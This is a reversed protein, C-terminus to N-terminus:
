KVFKYLNSGIRLVYAGPSLAHIFSADAGAKLLVGNLNYVDAETCDKLLETIGSERAIVTVTCRASLDSGDVTAATITATGVNQLTVLGNNDVTAVNDDSSTWKVGKDTTEAPLVTASLAIVSGPFDEVSECDLSISTALIVAPQKELVVVECVAELGNAAIASVMAHGPAVATVVGAEVTAVLEDSSSWTVSRDTANDPSVTATLVFVDGETVSVYTQDLEIGAVPIERASVTVECGASLGNSATATIIASGPAVATVVGAEVTAVAADSSSWTVSRNTANDPNVTATLAFVDGETVSVSTRDLEIGAVAVVPNGIQLPFADSIKNEYIDYCILDYLGDALDFSLGVYGSLTQRAPLSVSIGYSLLAEDSGPRFVRAYIADNYDVDSNNKLSVNFRTETNPKVAEAPRFESVWIEARQMPAGSSFRVNGSADVTMVLYAPVSQPFLLDQMNGEPTKFVLSARYTGAPLRSPIYAGLSTYGSLYGDSMGPFSLDVGEPSLYEVSGDSEPVVKLYLSVDVSEPSFNFVGENSGFNVFLVSNNSSSDAVIGGTAYISYWSTTTGAPPQIGCVISQDSNYGGEFGGIGQLGPDLASLLFFGNGAGSWGWNIHFYGNEYGDCVFAHGGSPAQGCYLVPRRAALEAYIIDEWEEKSFYDRMLGRVGKDYKFYTKLAYPVYCDSTGSEASSYGMDVSVGCAYMLNAVAAKQATTSSGTYKDLMNAYDFKAAGYNYTLTKGNWKYSRSGSGGSPYNHYKIIQAMATAVCGTVSRGGGDTPCDLNYPSGQDWRTTLLEPIRERPAAAASLTKTFRSENKLYYDSEAAYRSLWWKLEPSATSLDFPDSDSYGLLAPMRDDAPTVVFGSDGVNFVYLASQGDVEEAYALSCASRGNAMRLGPTKGHIRELAQGPTLHAAGTPQTAVAMLGAFLLVLKKCNSLVM